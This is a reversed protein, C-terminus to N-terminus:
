WIPYGYIHGQKAGPSYTGRFSTNGCELFHAFCRLLSPRNMHPKEFSEDTHPVFIPHKERSIKVRPSHPAQCAAHSALLPPYIRAFSYNKELETKATMKQFIPILKNVSYIYISFLTVLPNEISSCFMGKVICFAFMHVFVINSYCINVTKWLLTIIISKSWLQVINFKFEVHKISKVVTNM